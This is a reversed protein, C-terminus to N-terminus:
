IELDRPVFFRWNQGSNLTEPNYSWTSIVSPKKFICGVQLMISPTGWQKERDDTLNWHWVPHFVSSKAGIQANGSSLELKFGHTTIFHCVYGRLAHFLHGITKWTWGDFRLTVYASFWSNQGLKLTEPSYSWNSDVSPWSIIRLEQLQM